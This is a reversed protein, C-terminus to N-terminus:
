VRKKGLRTRAKKGGGMMTPFPNNFFDTDPFKPTIGMWKAPKFIGTGDSFFYAYIMYFIVFAFVAIFSIGLNKILKYRDIEGQIDTINPDAEIPNKEKAVRKCIRKEVITPKKGIRITGDDSDITHGSLISNAVYQNTKLKKIAPKDTLRMHGILCSFEDGAPNTKVPFSNGIFLNILKLLDIKTNAINDKLFLDL